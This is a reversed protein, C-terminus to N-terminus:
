EIEEKLLAPKVIKLKPFLRSGKELPITLLIIKNIVASINKKPPIPYKTM